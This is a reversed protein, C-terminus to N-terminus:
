RTWPSPSPTPCSAWTFAALLVNTLIGIVSTRVIVAERDLVPAASSSSM